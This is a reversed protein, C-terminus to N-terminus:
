PLSSAILPRPMTPQLLRAHFRGAPNCARVPRHACPCQAPAAACANRAPCSACAPCACARYPQRRSPRTACPAIVRRLITSGIGSGAVLLLSPVARAAAYAAAMPAAVDEFSHHGGGRGGTWQNAVPNPAVAAAIAIARALADAAGPKFSVWRAGAGALARVIGVGADLSPVGAAVCVSEIPAGEALMALVLPLQFAWQKANLYMMNLSIGHGPALRRALLGLRERFIAARPLGGCAVEATFGANTAAAVLAGGYFSTCPTMGAILV